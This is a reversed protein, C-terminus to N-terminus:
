MEVILWPNLVPLLHLDEAQLVILFSVGTFINEQSNELFKTVCKLYVEPRNSRSSCQIESFLTGTAM